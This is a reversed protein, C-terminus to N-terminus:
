EAQKKPVRGCERTQVCSRPRRLVPCMCCGTINLISRLLGIRSMLLLSVLVDYWVWWPRKGATIITVLFPGTAGGISYSGHLLGSMTNANERSGAWACWSGDLLGMGLGQFAFSVLIMSFSPHLAAITTSIIQFLPAVVAIGLQGYKHHIADSCQAALVYGTPGALFILSVSLDTLHYHDSLLPLVAGISSNFLGMTVFSFMAAAIKFVFPMRMKATTTASDEPADALANSADHLLPTAESTAIHHAM